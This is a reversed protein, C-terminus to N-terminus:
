STDPCAPSTPARWGRRPGTSGSAGIPTCDWLSVGRRRHPRGAPGGGEARRGVGYLEGGDRRPRDRRGHHHLFRDVGRGEAPGRALDTRPPRGPPSSGDAPRHRPGQEVDPGYGRGSRRAHPGDPRQDDAPQAPRPQGSRDAEAQGGPEPRRARRAPDRGRVGGRRELLRPRDDLRAAGAPAKTMPESIPM